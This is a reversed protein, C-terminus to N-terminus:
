VLFMAIHPVKRVSESITYRLKDLPSKLKRRTSAEIGHRIGDREVRWSEYRAETVGGYEILHGSMNKM